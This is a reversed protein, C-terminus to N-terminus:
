QTMKDKNKHNGPEFDVFHIQYSFQCKEQVGVVCGGGGTFVTCGQRAPQFLGNEVEVTDIVYLYQLMKQQTLTMQEVRTSLFESRSFDLPRLCYQIYSCLKENRMSLKTIVVNMNSMYESSM